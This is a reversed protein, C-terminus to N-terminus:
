MESNLMKTFQMETIRESDDVDLNISRNHLALNIYMVAESVASFGHILYSCASLAYIDNLIQTNTMHHDSTLQFVGKTGDSRLVNPQQIIKSAVNFPWRKKIHDMASQKDTALFIRANPVREVFVRAYKLYADLKGVLRGAAKDTARYHMGLWVGGAKIIRKQQELIFEKPHFYKKVMKHATIRQPEYWAHLSHINKKLDPTYPWARVSWKANYHLGPFLQEDKMTTLCHTDIPSIKWFYSKWIGNGYYKYLKNTPVSNNRILPVMNIDDDINLWRHVRVAHNTGGHVIKDWVQKNEPALHIWPRLDHQEAFILQNIVYM